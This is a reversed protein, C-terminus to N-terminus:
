FKKVIEWYGDKDTGVRKVCGKEKLIKIKRYITKESVGIIKSLDLITYKSNDLLLKIIKEESKSLKNASGFKSRYFIFKFGLENKIYDVKINNENCTSYVREFGTGFSEIEGTKFLVKLIKPNLEIPEVNGKVFDEPIFGRPFIGPNYISLRDKFIDIEFSTNSNFCAHCFENNVIERIAKLPIELEEKRTSSGDLTVNWNLNKTIFNMAEEICTYINGGFHNLSIFTQKTETAFVATKLLIPENKSFLVRGSNNLYNSNKYLLGFKSLIDYSNTYNYNIRGIECGRKFAKKLLEEDIDEYTEESKSNEWISYDIKKNRFLNELVDGSIKEDRDDYRLYYIDFCSYPALDGQFKIEIFDKDDNSKLVNIEYYPTPKIYLKIDRAIENTTNKGLQQGIVDGNDLVGYYLVGNGHKNLISSISQLGERRESTSKKFEIIESERGINMNVM